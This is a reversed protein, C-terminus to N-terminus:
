CLYGVTVASRLVSTVIRTPSLLCGKWRLLCYSQVHKSNKQEISISTSELSKYVLQAVKLLLCILKYYM